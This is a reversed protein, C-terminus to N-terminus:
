WLVKHDQQLRRTHTNTQKSQAVDLNSLLAKMGKKTPIVRIDHHNYYESARLMPTPTFVLAFREQNSYCSPSRLHSSSFSCYKNYLVSDDMIAIVAQVNCIVQASVAINM